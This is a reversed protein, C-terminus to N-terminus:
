GSVNKKAAAIAEQYWPFDISAQLVREIAPSDLLHIQNQVERDVRYNLGLVRLCFDIAWELDYNGGNVFLDHVRASEDWLSRYRPSIEIQFQGAEDWGLARPLTTHGDPRRLTPVQYSQGDALEVATGELLSPRALDAPGPPEENTSQGIWLLAESVPRWTQRDAQFGSCLGPSASLLLGSGGDPGRGHVEAAFLDALSRVDGFIEGLRRAALLARDLRGGPALQERTLKPLFYLPGPM